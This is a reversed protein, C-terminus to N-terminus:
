FRRRAYARVAIAQAAQAEGTGDQAVLFSLADQSVAKGASVGVTEVVVRGCHGVVADAAILQFLQLFVRDEQAGAGQQDGGIEERGLIHFGGFGTGVLFAFAEIGVDDEVGVQAIGYIDRKRTRVGIGFVAKARVCGPPHEVAVIVRVGVPTRAPSYELEAMAQSPLPLGAAAVVEYLIGGVRQLKAYLARVPLGGVGAVAEVIKVIAVHAFKIDFPNRGEGQLEVGGLLAVHQAVRIVSLHQAGVLRACGVGYEGIVVIGEAQRLPFGQVRLHAFVDKRIDEVILGNDRPAGEDCGIPKDGPYEVVGPAEMGVDAPDIVRSGFALVVDIGEVGAGVEVEGGGIGVASAVIDLHAKDIFLAQVTAIAHRGAVEPLHGALLDIVM